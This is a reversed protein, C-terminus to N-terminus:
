KTSWPIVADKEYCENEDFPRKEAFQVAHCTEHIIVKAANKHNGYPTSIDIVGPNISYTSYCGGGFGGCSINPNISTVNACFLAYQPPFEKRLYRIGKKITTNSLETLAPRVTVFCKNEMDFYVFFHFFLFIVVLVGLGIKAFRKVILKNTTGFMLRYGDNLTKFRSITVADIEYKRERTEELESYGCRLCVKVGEYLSAGCKPCKRETSSGIM